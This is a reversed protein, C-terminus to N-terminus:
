ATTWWVSDSDEWDSVGYVGVVEDVAQKVTPWSIDHGCLFGGSRLKPRWALIDAKANEYDHGADVFILDLSSDSVQEAATATDAKIIRVREGYRAASARVSRELGPMDWGNYTQGGPIAEREPCWRWEDVGIYETISPCHDLLHCLTRGKWLGLEAIKQLKHQNIIEKLFDGRYM